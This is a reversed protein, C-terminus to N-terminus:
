IDMTTDRIAKVVADIVQGEEVKGFLEQTAVNKYTLLLPFDNPRVAGSGSGDAILDRRLKFIQVKLEEGVLSTDGARDALQANPILAELGTDTIVVAGFSRVAM